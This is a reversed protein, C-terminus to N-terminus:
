PKLGSSFLPATTRVALLAEGVALEKRRAAFGGVETGFSLVFSGATEVLLQCGAVPLREVARQCRFDADDACDATLKTVM